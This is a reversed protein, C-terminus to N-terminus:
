PGDRHVEPLTQNRLAGLVRAKLEVFRPHTVVDYARPRPLDVPVEVVIRAPRPGLVVVRDSLLIAEEVDHTVLIVTRDLEEWLALLWEQLGARTLADLAGFPEDLLLLPREALLTRLFAARQRMGGSLQAPYAEAFEALGFRALWPLARRRAEHKPVGRLELPLVVNDVLRRWPLLLDRQHMYAVRGLREPAPQGDLLVEGSTPQELGAVINLLTSKGCGSPGVISVFERNLVLLDIPGLAVIRERGRRFVKTVRRLEVRPPAARSTM